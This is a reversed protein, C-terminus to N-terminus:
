LAGRAHALEAAERVPQVTGVEHNAHQLCALLPADRLAGALGPPAAGGTGGAGGGTVGFGQGALARAPALVSTHEVAAVVLHRRRRAGRALGTVALNAAETGGSTFIVEDPAPGSAA